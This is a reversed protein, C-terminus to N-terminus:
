GARRARNQRRKHELFRHCADEASPRDVFPGHTEAERTDFYWEGNVNFYRGSRLPYVRSENHRQQSM